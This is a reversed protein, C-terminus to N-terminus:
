QMCVKIPNLSDDQGKTTTHAACVSRMISSKFLPNRLSLLNSVNLSRCVTLLPAMNGTFYM